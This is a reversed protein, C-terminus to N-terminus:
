RREEMEYFMVDLEDVEVSTNTAQVGSVLTVELQGYKGVTALPLKNQAKGETTKAPWNENNFSIATSSRDLYFNIDLATNSKYFSIIESFHAIKDNVPQLIKSKWQPVIDTGDDDTATSDAKYIETSTAVFLDGVRDVFGSLLQNPFSFEIWVGEYISFREFMQYVFTRYTSTASQIHLWYQRMRPYYWGVANEHYSTTTIANLTRQISSNFLDSIVTINNGDYVCVGVKPSYYFIFGSVDAVTLEAGCGKGPIADEINFSFNAASSIALKIIVDRDLVVVRDLLNRLGKIDTAGYKALPVTNLPPHVDFSFDGNGTITSYALNEPEQADININAVVSRTTLDLRHRYNMQTTRLSSDYPMGSHDEYSPGKNTWKSATLDYNYTYVDTGSWTIEQNADGRIPLETVFYFIGRNKLYDVTTEIIRIYILVSKVRLDLMQSFRMSRANVLGVQINVRFDESAGGTIAEEHQYARDLSTLPGIQGGHYRYACRVQFVADYSEGLDGVPTSTNNIIVDDPADLVSPYLYYGAISTVSNLFYSYKKIYGFWMPFQTPYSKSSGTTITAENSKQFLRVSDINLTRTRKFGFFDAGDTIGIDATLTYVVKSWWSYPQAEFDTVVTSTSGEGGVPFFLSWGNYYDDARAATECKDTYGSNAADVLTTGSTGADATVTNQYNFFLPHRYISYSDGSAQSAIGPTKLTLVKTSGVYDEVLGMKGRTWNCVVWNNYYDNTSSSLAADILSTATTSGDAVLEEESETLEQWADIWSGTWDLYPRIFLKDVSSVTAHVFFITQTSPKTVEMKHMSVITWNSPYSTFNDTLGNRKVLKGFKKAIEFNVCTEAQVDAIDTISTNDNLGGFKKIAIKM